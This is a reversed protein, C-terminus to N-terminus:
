ACPSKVEIAPQIPFAKGKPKRRTKRWTFWLFLLSLISPFWFPITFDHGYPNVAHSFGLSCFTSAKDAADWSLAEGNYFHWGSGPPRWTGWHILVRGSNLGFYMSPEDSHVVLVQRWYSVGWAGLCLTLLMLALGFMFWRRLM